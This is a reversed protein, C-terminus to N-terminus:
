SGFVRLFFGVVLNFIYWFYSFVDDLEKGRGFFLVRYREERFIEFM